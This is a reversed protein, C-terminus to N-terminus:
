FVKFRILMEILNSNSVLPEVEEQFQKIIILQLLLCNHTNKVHYFYRSLSSELCVICLKFIKEFWPRSDFKLCLFMSQLCNFCNTDDIFSKYNSKTYEYILDIINIVHENLPDCAFSDHFVFEILKLITSVGDNLNECLLSILEYRDINLPNRFENSIQIIKTLHLSLTPIRIENISSQKLLHILASAITKMHKIMKNEMMQSYFSSLFEIIQIPKKFKSELTEVLFDIMDIKVLINFLNSNMFDGTNGDISKFTVLEDFMLDEVVVRDKSQVRKKIESFFIEIIKDSFLRFLKNMFMRYKWINV